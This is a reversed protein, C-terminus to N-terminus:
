LAAGYKREGLVWKTLSKPLVFQVGRLVLIMWISVMAGAMSTSTSLAHICDQVIAPPPNKKDILPSSTLPAANYVVQKEIPLGFNNGIFGSGSHRLSDRPHGGWIGGSVAALYGFVSWANVAITGYQLSAIAQLLGTDEELPTNKSQRISEPWLLTCSLTGFLKSKDNVFPAVTELMYQVPDTGTEGGGGPMEVIAVVPGFAEETLSYGNFDDEGPTGCEVFILDDDDKEEYNVCSAASLVSSRRRGAPREDDDDNSSETTNDNDSYASLASDRKKLSGPYYIPDKKTTEIEDLLIERFAANQPWEKPIVIVQACLCNSGGNFKKSTVFAKAANRLEKEDYVAPAFIFPTACGLESTVMAAADKITKVDKRTEVL